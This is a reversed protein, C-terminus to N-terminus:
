VWPEMGDLKPGGDLARDLCGVDHELVQLFYIFLELISSRFILDVYGCGSLHKQVHMGGLDLVNCCHKIVVLGIRIGRYFVIIEIWVKVVFIGGFVVPVKTPICVMHGSTTTYIVPYKPEM